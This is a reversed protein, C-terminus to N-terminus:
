DRPAQFLRKFDGDFTDLFTHIDVVDSATVPPGDTSGEPEYSPTDNEITLERIARDSLQRLALQAKGPDGDNMLAAVFNRSHCDTCEVLMTWMDPKRNIIHIDETDFDRHCVSCRALRDLVIRKMKVDPEM